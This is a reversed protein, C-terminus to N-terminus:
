SGASGSSVKTVVERYKQEAESNISWVSGLAMFILVLGLPLLFWFRQKVLTDKDLKM